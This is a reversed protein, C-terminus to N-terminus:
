VDPIWTADNMGRRLYGGLHGSPGEYGFFPWVAPNSFLERVTTARMEEFFPTGEIARLDAIQRDEPREAFPVDGAADLARAGDRVLAIRAGDGSAEIRRLVVAYHADELFDYPYLQRAMALLTKATARDLGTVGGASGTRDTM